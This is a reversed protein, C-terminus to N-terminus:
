YIYEFQGPSNPPNGRNNPILLNTTNEPFVQLNIRILLSNLLNNRENSEGLSYKSFNLLALSTTSVCGAAFALGTNEDYVGGAFALITSVAILVQGMTETINSIKKWKKRSKLLEIVEEKIDPNILENEVTTRLEGLQLQHMM